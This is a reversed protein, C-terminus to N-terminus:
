GRLAWFKNGLFNTALSVVIAVAQALEPLLGVSGSCAKLVALNLGLAAANVLSFRLFEARNPAGQAKFTWNRNMFYSNIVGTCYGVGSALLMPVGLARFLVVFIVFHLATNLGGVVSFRVLQAFEQKM